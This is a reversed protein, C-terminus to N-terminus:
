WSQQGAAPWRRLRPQLVNAFVNLNEIIWARKDDDSDIDFEDIIITGDEIKTGPPLQALLARRESRLYKQILILNERRPGSIFIGDEFDKLAFAKIQIGPFPTNLVALTQAM